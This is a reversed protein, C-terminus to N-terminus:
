YFQVITGIQRVFHQWLQLFSFGNFSIEEQFVRGIDKFSMGGSSITWIGFLKVSINRM